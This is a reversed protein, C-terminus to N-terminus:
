RDNGVLDNEADAPHWVDIADPKITRADRERGVLPDSDIIAQARRIGIDVGGAVHARRLFKGVDRLGRGAEGHVIRQRPFLPPLALEGNGPAGVAIRLDRMDAHLDPFRAFM